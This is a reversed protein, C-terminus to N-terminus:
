QKDQDASSATAHQVWAPPFNLGISDREVQHAALHANMQRDVDAVRKRDSGLTAFKRIPRIYMYEFYSITGGPRLLRLYSSLIDDVINTPFNIHPLGSIIFDYQRDPTFEQLPLQHIETLDSVASWHPASQFRRRLVEVFSANLEVIDFTDGPRLLRVIRDTFPGTGPGCELVRIPADGRQALRRTIAKALFRSSPILSGTTEFRSVFERFFIARDRLLQYM